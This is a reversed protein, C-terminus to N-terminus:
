RPLFMHQLWGFAPKVLASLIELVCCTSDFIKLITKPSLMVAYFVSCPADFM